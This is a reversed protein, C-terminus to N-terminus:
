GGEGRRVKGEGVLAAVSSGDGGAGRDGGFSSDDGNDGVWLVRAVDGDDSM